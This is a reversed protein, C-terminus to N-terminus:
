DNADGIVEELAYKIIFDDNELITSYISSRENINNILESIKMMPRLTVKSVIKIMVGGRWM